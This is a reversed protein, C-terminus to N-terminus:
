APTINGDIFTKDTIDGFRRHGMKKLDEYLFRGIQCRHIKFAMEIKDALNGFLFDDGDTLFVSRVKINGAKRCFGQNVFAHQCRHLQAM